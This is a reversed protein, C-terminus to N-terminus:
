SGAGLPVRAAVVTGAGPASQVEFDGGLLSAREAMGMLGFHGSGVQEARDREFGRGDDKVTLGVSDPAFDLAVELRHAGAHHVANRVAEEAIRFVGLEVDGALRAATGTVELDTALAACEEETAALLSSLAPALGLQDLAPSRLGRALDRLRTAADLAQLRSEDLDKTVAEPVGPAGALSELRRALHLFLQLPEDHLERALRRRQEEEARVVFAAHLSARRRKSREETVDEFIVQVSGGESGGESGGVASGGAASGGVASGGVASGGAGSGGAGSGGVNNPLPVVSLRYDRGDPLVLVQGSLAEIATCANVLSPAPRGLLVPGFLASAAPNADRVTGQDDLVLIPVSTTEFLHRYRVEAELRESTAQQARRHALRQAEIRQGVFLAVVDVLILNASDAGIHGEDHPLLLDPLWLLTAWLGTAASGALGYRLAAYGVPVVLLAVPIGAPFVGTSTPINLDVALHAAAIVVVMAQVAWFPAERVPPHLAGRLVTVFGPEESM